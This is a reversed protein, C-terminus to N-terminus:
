IDFTVTAEFKKNKKKIKLQYFTAAKVELCKEPVKTSKTTAKIYTDSLKEIQFDTYIEKNIDAQFIIENLFNVLVSELNNGHAGILRLDKSKLSSLDKGLMKECLGYAINSFLEKLNKGQAKIRLDATHELIEYKKM